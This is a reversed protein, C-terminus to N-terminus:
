QSAKGRQRHAESCFVLSGSRIADIQPIHVGCHACAVFSEATAIHPPNDDSKDNRLRRLARIVLYALFGLILLLVLRNM